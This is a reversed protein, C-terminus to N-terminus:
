VEGQKVVTVDRAPAVDEVTEDSFKLDEEVSVTDKIRLFIVPAAFVLAGAVLGWQEDRVFCDTLRKNLCLTAHPLKWFVCRLALCPTSPRRSATSAGFSPPAPRSSARTSARS